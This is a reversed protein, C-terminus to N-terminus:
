NITSLTQHRIHHDMAMCAYFLGVGSRREMDLMILAKMRPQM